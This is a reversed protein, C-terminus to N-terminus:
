PGADSEDVLVYIADEERRDESGDHDQGREYEGLYAGRAYGKAPEALKQLVTEDEFSVVVPSALRHATCSLDADRHAGRQVDESLGRVHEHRDLRADERADEGHQGALDDGAAVLHRVSRRVQKVATRDCEGGLRQSVLRALHLSHRHCLRVRVGGSVDIREGRGQGSPAGLTIPELAHEGAGYEAAKRNAKTVLRRQVRIVATGGVSTGGASSPGRAVVFAVALLRCAAPSMHERRERGCGRERRGEGRCRQSGFIREHLWRVRISDTALQQM